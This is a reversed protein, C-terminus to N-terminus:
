EAIAEDLESLGGSSLNLGLVRTLQSEYKDLAAKMQERHEEELEERAKTSLKLAKVRPVLANIEQQLQALKPAAAEASAEDRITSLTEATEDLIAIQRTILAEPSRGCGTLLLLVVAAALPSFLRM